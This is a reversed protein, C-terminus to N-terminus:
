KVGLAAKIASLDTKLAGIDMNGLQDLVPLVKYIIVGLLIVTLGLGIYVVTPNAGRVQGLKANVSKLLDLFDNSVTALAKMVGSKMLNGLLAPDAIMERTSGTSLGGVWKTITAKTKEDSKEAIEKIYEVVDPSAINDRHPSRNLMPEMDGENVVALRITKQLFKPVFGVGPYLIDITSLENVPWTRTSGDESTITIEGGDKPAFEFKGGGSKLAVLVRIYKDCTKAWKWQMFFILLVFPIGLYLAARGFSALEIEV